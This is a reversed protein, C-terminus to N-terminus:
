QFRAHVANVAAQNINIEAKNLLSQSYAAFLDQTLAANAQNTFIAVLSKAEDTSMDAAHIADLRLVIAGEGTTIVKLDGPAMDFVATILDRSGGIFADRMQGLEQNVTLGLTEFAVGNEIEARKAEALEAVAKGTADKIWAASVEETIEALPAPSADTEDDLRLAFIGGDSLSAIEPFDKRTVQAAAERFTQYGSIGDNVGEHFAVTGLVLDSEAVADELTAGAALLDDIANIKDEIMRRARGQALDNRVTKRVTEPDTTTAPLIGNVRFLAPGSDSQTPASIAGAPTAFVADGAAGLDSKSVDGLDVDSLALGRGEVLDAFTTTGAEIDARAKAAADMDAFALREVLRREPTNFESDRASIQEAILAEDVDVTDLIMDPTLWAYTINKTAPRTFDKINDNYFAELAAADPATIPAELDQGGLQAFTFDRTELAFASLTQGFTAPMEVGGSIAGQVLARATDERLSEEFESQTLNANQLAANYAAQNFTGDSGQFAQIEVLQRALNKDGISLGLRETEADLARLTVLSSLARRDVGLAQAQQFPLKVGTQAEFARLETELTRSYDRIAIDKGDVDGLTTAGGSLNTVGFGGLGLILMAM